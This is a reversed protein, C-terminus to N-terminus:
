KQCQPCYTTGRGGIKIKKLSHKKPCAEQKYVALFNQFNGKGDLNSYNDVTSGNHKIALKLVRQIEAHLKTLQLESIQNIKKNPNIGAYYMAEQAYINGIGLIVNQDMIKNKINSKPYRQMLQIFEDGNCKLPELGLKAYKQKIQTKNLLKISGFRRITNYTFYNKGYEFLGSTYRDKKNINFYGTMRLHTFLYKGNNLNFTIYKGNRSINNIKFPLHQKIQPDIVKEDYITLKKIERGTLHEKLQRVVTEVEPLEPM